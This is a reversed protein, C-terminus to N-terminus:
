PRTAASGRSARRPRRGSHPTSPRSTTRMPWPWTPSPSCLSRPSGPPGGALAPNLRVARSAAFLAAFFLAVNRAAAFGVERSIWAFKQAHEKQTWRWSEAVAPRYTAYLILLSAALLGGLLIVGPRLRVVGPRSLRDVGVAALASIALTVWLHFRVPIRSSGLIPVRHLHDMLFTFRGLMLMAGVVGVVIWTGVWRDRWAMAGLAALFLGVVGLYTDMEHYPYFGDMWDTDRARSGYVEHVLLAPLM